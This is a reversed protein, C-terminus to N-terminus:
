ARGGLEKYGFARIGFRDCGALASVRPTVDHIDDCCLPILLLSDSCAYIVNVLTITKGCSFELIANGRGLIPKTSEDGMYLVSGDKVSQFTDFWYRDKCAHCTTGLDIWWAFADVHYDKKFHGTKGYKWCTLKSEKKNSGDNNGDNKRKKAKNNKNNNKNKGDEIMNVSSSGAIEKGKGKSSEKAKLTEEIRFHSGLQVLSLEDKIHKLSHKFDKWSPSLKDIISSVYISEDMNLSHQTFQRLIQLLEHYQEMVSRSDVMQMTEKDARTEDEVFEPMLSSLVYIFKLTTLLFHIKKQWPRFNNGEFKDLKEFKATMDKVIDGM